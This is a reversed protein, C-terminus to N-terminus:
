VHLNKKHPTEVIFLYHTHKVYSDTRYAPLLMNSFSSRSIVTVIYRTRKISVKKLVRKAVRQIFTRIALASQIGEAGSFHEFIHVHTM